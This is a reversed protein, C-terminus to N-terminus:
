RGEHRLAGRESETHEGQGIDAHSYTDNCDQMVTDFYVCYRLFLVKDKKTKFKFELDWEYFFILKAKRNNVRAEGECKCMETM